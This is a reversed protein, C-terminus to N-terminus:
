IECDLIIYNNYSHGNFMSNTFYHNATLGSMGIFDVFMYSKTYSGNLGTQMWPTDQATFQASASVDMMSVWNGLANSPTPVCLMEVPTTMLSYIQTTNPSTGVYTKNNDWVYRYIRNMARPKDDPVYPTSGSGM